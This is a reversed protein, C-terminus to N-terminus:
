DHAEKRHATNIIAELLAIVRTSETTPVGRRVVQLYYQLHETNPLEVHKHTRLLEEAQEQTAIVSQAALLDIAYDFWSAKGTTEALRLGYEFAKARVAATTLRAAGLDNLVAMLHLHLVREADNPLGAEFARDAVSCILDLDHTARTVATSAVKAQRVETPAAETVVEVVQMTASSAADQSVHLMFTDTGIKFRDGDHLAIGSVGLCHGNVSVGNHSNLDRLTVRGSLDVCLEAHRRSVLESPVILQCSRSRGILYKGPLLVMEREAHQLVVVCPNAALAAPRAHTRLDTSVDAYRSAESYTLM